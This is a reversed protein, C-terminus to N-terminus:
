QDMERYKEEVLRATELWVPLRETKGLQELYELDIQSEPATGTRHEIAVERALHQAVYIATLANMQSHPTDQPHHHYAVTQVIASPFGWLGLLYAGIEPHAAGFQDREAIYIPIHEREVRKIVEAMEKARYAYLILSGTHSLMGIAPMVNIVEKPLKEQEAILTAVVGLQQSRQCLQMMRTADAKTGDFSHFLGVFLALAKLTDIGVMRIAQSVSTIKQRIAFYASNTLKLIEATLAIDSTIISTLEETNVLPNELAKVLNAYTTPPSALAGIGGVLARLDPNTLLDRLDLANEITEILLVDDCPKALYQHAPGITRLIAEEEAFGSLIIRATHPHKQQITTLLAAGDMGPMCMDSIVVDPETEEAQALASEADNAFRVEWDPRASRLRRRLGDLINKDDDVFLIFSM